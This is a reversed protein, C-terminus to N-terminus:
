YYYKKIADFSSLTSSISLLISCSLLGSAKLSPSLMRELSVELYIVEWEADDLVGEFLLIAADLDGVIGDFILDHTQSATELQESGEAKSTLAFFIQM